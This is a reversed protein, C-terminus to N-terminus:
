MTFSERWHKERNVPSPLCICENEKKTINDLKSRHEGIWSETEDPDHQKITLLGQALAYPVDLVSGATELLLTRPDTDLRSRRCHGFVISFPLQGSADLVRYRSQIQTHIRLAEM